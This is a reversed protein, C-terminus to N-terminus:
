HKHNSALGPVDQRTGERLNGAARRLCAALEPLAQSELRLTLAGLTLHVVGCGCQEVLALPGAELIRRECAHSM